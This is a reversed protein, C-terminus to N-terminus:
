GVNAVQRDDHESAPTPVPTLASEDTQHYSPILRIIAARVKDPEGDAMAILKNLEAQVDSGRFENAYAAHVKAHTTSVTAEDDFYLEEYLKEGPRIGTFSFEISGQPLGSLAVLDKALQVIKIPEGMDLVFIEGGKCMSAAQIVLQSAEPISMFYRTMQPDTITIPGGNRIQEQFLPIVSGASGLVNGFRVVAFKTRSTQAFEYVIREALHKSCGMISTPNVAKDTSVMVFHDVGFEDALTTITKTGLINNKVAEGPNLEMLPVHKHAAAHFVIEPSRSQYLRRMRREDTIDGIEIHLTVGLEEALPKLEGFIAHIRNEGRGLLILESPRFRIAQRCIESGISGGAGTVLVRKGQLLSEVEKTDLKVPDRRLLDEINLPRLPIEKTGSMADEFRPLVRVNLDAENCQISLRRLSAGDLVGAPVLVDAAGIKEAVQVVEGLHGLVPVGGLVAKRRFVTSNALLAAVRCPMSQNSNIQAALMGAHHDTGVLVAPRKRRSSLTNGLVEDAFRWTSRLGGIVLVTLLADLVITLRPIAGQFSMAFYDLFAVALMSILTVKLLSRLDAFTVYRWWGHFHAGFYFVALKVLVVPGLTSWFIRTSSASANFNFRAFFAFAYIAAFLGIHMAILIPIRVSSRRLIPSLRMLAKSLRPTGDSRGSHHVEGSPKM